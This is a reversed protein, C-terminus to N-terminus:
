GVSEVLTEQLFGVWQYIEFVQARPDDTDLFAIEEADPESDIGLRSAIALRMDTFAHM